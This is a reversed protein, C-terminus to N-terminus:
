TRATCIMFSSLCAGSMPIALNRGCRCCGGSRLLGAPPISSGDPQGDVAGTLEVWLYKSFSRTLEAIGPEFTKVADAVDLQRGPRNRCEQLVTRGM